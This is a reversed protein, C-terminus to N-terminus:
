LIAEPAPPLNTIVPVWEAQDMRWGCHQPSPLEPNAIRDSNWVMLQYHARLIAQHLAAQTPPLRDSQAQKKKFLSWRLEKVTLLSTRPQYLLCVFKKIAAIIEENPYAAQGLEALATIISSDM